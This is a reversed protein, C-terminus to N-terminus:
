HVKALYVKASGFRAKGFGLELVYSELCSKDDDDDNVRTFM